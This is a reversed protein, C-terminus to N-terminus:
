PTVTETTKHKGYKPREGHALGYDSPLPLDMNLSDRAIHEVGNLYESMEKVKMKTTSKWIVVPTGNVETTYPATLNQILTQHMEDHSCGSEAAMLDVWMRYMRHQAESRKSGVKKIEVKMKGDLPIADIAKKVTERATEHILTFTRM